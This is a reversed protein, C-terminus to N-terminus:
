HLPTKAAGLAVRHHLSLNQFYEVNSAMPSAYIYCKAHNPLMQVVFFEHIVGM